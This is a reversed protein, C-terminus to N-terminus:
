PNYKKIQLIKRHVIKQSTEGRSASLTYKVSGLILEKPTLETESLTFINENIWNAVKPFDKEELPLKAAYLFYNLTIENIEKQSFFSINEDTVVSFTAELINSPPNLTSRFDVIIRLEDSPKLYGSQSSINLNEVKGLSQFVIGWDNVLKQKTLELPMTTIMLSPQKELYIQRETERATIQKPNPTHVLFFPLAFYPISLAAMFALLFLAIIGSKDEKQNPKEM